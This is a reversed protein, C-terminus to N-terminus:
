PFEITASNRLDRLQRKSILSIEQDKLRAEVEDRSPLEVGAQRRGCLALLHLGADTRIPDSVQGVALKLAVDRFEPKLDKIDAEGLDSAIVGDVKAAQAGLTDCSKIQGKLGTLKQEAAAVAAAPADPPLSIAAQMLSVLQSTAGSHKDRVLIIYVGNSAPIPKSLEGPQLQEVAPRVEPPLADETLWGADGGTAATPASSFQRAVAPFPAGHQLQTILQDAGSEAAQMGGAQNADIFIEGVLYQPQAAAAEGESIANNIQAQSVNLRSGGYRGGIWRQWSIQARIQERFAQPQIGANALASLFQPGTTHYSQQAIGDIQQDVDADDAVIAMKQDKEARRVEQMELREDILESVAEQEIQQANQETMQIGSTAVILRVRQALDYSSIANDNVIAVVGQRLPGAAEQARGTAALATLATITAAFRAAKGIRTM